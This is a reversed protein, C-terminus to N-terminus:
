MVLTEKIEFPRHKLEVRLQNVEELQAMLGTEAEALQQEPTVEEYLGASIAWTKYNNWLQAKQARYDDEEQQTVGVTRKKSYFATSLNQVAIEYGSDKQLKEARQSDTLASPRKPRWISEVM